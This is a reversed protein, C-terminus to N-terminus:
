FDVVSGERILTMAIRDPMADDSNSLLYRVDDQRMQSVDRTMGFDVIFVDKVRGGGSGHPVVIVNRAHLDGHIIGAAHLRELKKLAIENAKAVEVPARTDRWEELTAGKVVDMVIFGVYDGERACVFADYVRPGVGIDGATSAHSVGRRWIDFMKDFPLNYMNSFREIKVARPRQAVDVSASANGPLKMRIMKVDGFKGSGLAEVKGEIGRIGAARLCPLVCDSEGAASIEVIRTKGVGAAARGRIETLIAEVLDVLEKSADKTTTTMKPRQRRGANDNFTMFMAAEVRTRLAPMDLLPVVRPRAM